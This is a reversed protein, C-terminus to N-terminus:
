FRRGEERKKGRKKERERTNGRVGSDPHQRIAAFFIPLLEERKSLIVGSTVHPISDGVVQFFFLLYPSYYLSLIPFSLSFFVKVTALPDKESDVFEM